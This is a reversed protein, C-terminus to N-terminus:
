GEVDVACRFGINPSRDLSPYFHILKTSWDAPRPGSDMYWESGGIKQSSGGKLISFRTHGDFHESETWNWVPTPPLNAAQWEHETPLRTGRWKAYARAEDLTVGTKPADPPGTTEGPRFAAWEANTVERAMIACRGLVVREEIRREFHLDPYVFNPFPAGTLEGSERARWRSVLTREGAEVIVMEATVRGASRPASVRTVQPETRVHAAGKSRDYETKQTALFTILGDDVRSRPVALVAGIGRPGIEVHGHDLEVGRVLDFLRSEMDSSVPLAPGRVTARSRNVLTWLRVGNHTWLTVYTRDLMCPVLPAWDGLTFHDAYRRQIPAMARLTAKDRDSWGNWTGFVNEWVLMGAGNMWALQLEGSHDLDWRRVLHMGHRREAWRNRLVGPATGDDLWQAWSAGHIPLGELPLALESELVVNTPLHQKLAEPGERLTDLFVGDFGFDRVIRAIAEPDAVGERRTGVDWPNYAMFARVGNRHLTEIARKLEPALRYHDFQNLDDIGIRPYAQWLVLADLGGFDRKMRALYTEVIFRSTREDYFERDFLMAMGCVFTRGAWSSEPKDYLSRDLTLGRRWADLGERWAQWEAPDEPAPILPPLSEM